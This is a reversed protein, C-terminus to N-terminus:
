RAFFLSVSGDSHEDRQSFAAKDVIEAAQNDTVAIVVGHIVLFHSGDPHTILYM